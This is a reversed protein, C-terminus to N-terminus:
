KWNKFLFIAIFLDYSSSAIWWKDTLNVWFFLNIQFCTLVEYTIGYLASLAQESTWTQLGSVLSETYAWM